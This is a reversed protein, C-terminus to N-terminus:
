CVCINRPSIVHACVHACVCVWAGACVCVWAGACVCVDGGIWMAFRAHLLHQALFSKKAM